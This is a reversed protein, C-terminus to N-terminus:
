THRWSSHHCQHRRSHHPAPPPPARTRSRTRLPRPPQHRPPQHRPPQPPRHHFRHNHNLPPPQHTLITHQHHSATACAVAASATLNTMIVVRWIHCPTAHFTSAHHHTANRHHPLRCCCWCGAGQTAGCGVAVAMWWGTSRCRHEPVMSCWACASCRRCTRVLWSVRTLGVQRAATATKQPVFTAQQQQGLWRRAAHKDHAVSVSAHAAAGAYVPAPPQGEHGSGGPSASCACSSRM